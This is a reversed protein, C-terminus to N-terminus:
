KINNIFECYGAGIDMLTSSKKVYKQFFDKCLVKWVMKRTANEKETFRFRYFDKTKM